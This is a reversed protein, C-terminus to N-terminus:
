VPNTIACNTELNTLLTYKPMNANCITATILPLCISFHDCRVSLFSCIRQNLTYYINSSKNCM